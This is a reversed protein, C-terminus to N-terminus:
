ATIKGLFQVVESVNMKEEHKETGVYKKRGTGVYKERSTGVYKERGTGVYKERCTIGLFIKMSFTKSVSYLSEDSKLCRCDVCRM